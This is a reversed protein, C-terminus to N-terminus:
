RERWVEQWKHMWVFRCKKKKKIKWWWTVPWIFVSWHLKGGDSMGDVASNAISSSLLAQVWSSLRWDMNDFRLWDLDLRHQLGGLQHPSEFDSHTFHRQLTWSHTHSLGSHWLGNRWGKRMGSPSGQVGTLVRRTHAHRVKVAWVTVGCRRKGRTQKLVKCTLAHGPVECMMAKRSLHTWPATSTSYHPPPTTVKPPSSTSPGQNRLSHRTRRKSCGVCCSSSPLPWPQWLLQVPSDTPILSLFLLATTLHPLPRVFACWCACPFVFYSTPM